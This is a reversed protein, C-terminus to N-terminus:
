RPRWYRPISQRIGHITVNRDFIMELAGSQDTRVVKTGQTRYAALVSAHPHGYRNRYGASVVAWEPAVTRLFLASSSTKSGHHPAILITSALRAGYREVLMAEVETPIDGALLLANHTNAVRLVCSQPNNGSVMIQPLPALVEFLIGDWRWSRGPTCRTHALGFASATQGVMLEDSPITRLLDQTAGDHDFDHHSLVLMQLRRLGVGVLQPLVVQEAALAGTDYLLSHRATRILVSLGQGVDLVTIWVTGPLPRPPTYFFMPLLLLVGLGRGPFGVPAILWLSGLMGLLLLSWPIGPLRWVPARGLWEMLTYFGAVLWAALELLWDFPLAVALLSLPALVISVLPIALLNALPSVLPLAAFFGTLPVLSMVSSAWQGLWLARWKGPPRRRGIGVLMLAAVLGFSLWLGPFFVAFPDFLLVASLALWWIQFPSLARRWLLLLAAVALMFFTRRTPVSWGALLSYGGAALLACMAVSVRLTVRGPARRQLLSRAIGGVLAAVMGIHLGSISVLHTVGTRAFLQWDQRAIGQQDGVTLATILASARSAGLVLQVRDAIKTRLRDVYALLDRAEALREGRGQLSGSALVGQGWLWQEADFGFANATAHRARLRVKVRWRSGGPWAHKKRAVLRLYTPVKAGKTEIQEVEALIRSGDPSQAALGRVVIVLQVPKMEWEAPLEQAMQGGARWVAYALGLLLMAGLRVSWQWGHPLFRRLGIALAGLAGVVRWDPLSPLFACLTVGACFGILWTM